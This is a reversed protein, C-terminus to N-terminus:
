GTGRVVSYGKSRETRRVVLSQGVWGEPEGYEAVGQAVVNGKSKGM